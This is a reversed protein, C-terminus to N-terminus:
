IEVMGLFRLLEQRLEEDPPTPCKATKAKSVIHKAHTYLVQMDFDFNGDNMEDQLKQRIQNLQYHAGSYYAKRMRVRHIKRMSLIAGFDNGSEYRAQALEQLAVIKPAAEKKRSDLDDIVKDLDKVFTLDNFEIDAISGLSSGLSLDTSSEHLLSSFSSMLSSLSNGLSHGKGPHQAKRPSQPSKLPLLHPMSSSKSFHPVQPRGMTLSRRRNRRPSDNVDLKQLTEEMSTVPLGIPMQSVSVTSIM